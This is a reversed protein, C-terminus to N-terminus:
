KILTNYFQIIQIVEEPTKCAFKNESLFKNVETSKDVLMDLMFDKGKKWKLFKGSKSNYVYYSDKEEYQKVPEVTAITKREVISKSVLRLFNASGYNYEQFYTYPTTGPTEPYGCGFTYAISDLGDRMKLYFRKVLGDNAIMEKKSQDQYHVKNSELNFRIMVGRYIKDDSLLVFGELFDDTLFPSGQITTNDEPLFPLGGTLANSINIKQFQNTNLGSFYGIQSYVPTFFFFLSITFFHKM